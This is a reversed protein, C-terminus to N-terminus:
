HGAAVAAPPAPRQLERLDAMVQLAEALMLDKPPPPAEEGEPTPPTPRRRSTFTSAQIQDAFAEEEHLLAERGERSLPLNKRARLEGYRQVSDRYAAMEPDAALRAASRQKLAPLFPRVDGAIAPLPLPAIEDWPLAAPLNSEGLEMFDTFSPFAIDPTVGKRQTSGGNVRYFKALTLKLSGPDRRLQAQFPLRIAQDLNIVSQVTGKGHTSGEGIVVARGYDQLAAAVIESASASLRNTLVVLPGTYLPQPRTSKQIDLRRESDRVQVVPGRPLFLGAIAIAEDLSGGGDSRLDLIVGAAGGATADRLLRELDRSASKFEKDGNRRGDFDAYFSPLELIAVHRGPATPLPQQSLKAEQETLKVEDRTLTITAPLGHVGKAASLITLAVKTGKPGRIMRVVKNLNMNIVEVPEKGNQAVAIIRDGAQLRGDLAAPGGPMVEVIKVYGDESTLVAGIGQLSLRMQINFDEESTPAMYASHPDYLQAFTTLYLETLNLSENEELTALLSQHFRLVREAPPPPIFGAEGAGGNGKKEAAKRKSEEAMLTYVLIQNKVKKRWLEDLEARSACWPAKARDLLLEEKVTFDPPTKVAERVFEVRERVRQVFRDYVQFGFELRGKLLLECLEQRRGAFEALDSALFYSREPDLREFYATFLRESLTEDPSLREYHLRPLMQAVVRAVTAELATPTPQQWGAAPTKAPETTAAAATPEAANCSALGPGCLLFLLALLLQRWRPLRSQPRTSTM